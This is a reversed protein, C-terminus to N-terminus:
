TILSADFSTCIISTSTLVSRSARCHLPFKVALFILQADVALLEISGIETKSAM